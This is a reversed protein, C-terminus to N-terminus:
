RRKHGMECISKTELLNKSLKFHKELHARIIEWFNWVIWSLDKYEELSDIFQIILQINDINKQLNPVFIQSDRLSKRAVKFM